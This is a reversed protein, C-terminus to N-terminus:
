GYAQVEATRGAVAQERRAAQVPGAAAASPAAFAASVYAVATTMGPAALALLRLGGFPAEAFGWVGLGWGVASAVIWAGRRSGRGRSQAAGLVLGLALGNVLMCRAGSAVYIAWALLSGLLWGAAGGLLTSLMWRVRPVAGRAAIAQAIGVCAATVSAAVITGWPGAFSVGVVMGVFAGATMGLLWGATTSAAWLLARGVRGATM